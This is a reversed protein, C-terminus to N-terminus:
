LALKARTLSTATCPSVSNSIVLRFTTALRTLPTDLVQPADCVHLISTGRLAALVDDTKASSIEREYLIKTALQAHRVGDETTHPAVDAIAHVRISLFLAHRASHPRSRHRVVMYSSQSRRRLAANRAVREGPNRHSKIILMDTSPHPVHKCARSCTLLVSSYM